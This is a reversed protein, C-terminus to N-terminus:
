SPDLYLGSRESVVTEFVEDFEVVEVFELVKVYTETM